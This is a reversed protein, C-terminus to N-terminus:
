DARFIKGTLRVKEILRKEDDNFYRSTRAGCLFYDVGCANQADVFPLTVGGVKNQSITQADIGSKNSWANGSPLLMFFKLTNKNRVIIKAPEIITRANFIGLPFCL